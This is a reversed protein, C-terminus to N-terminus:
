LTDLLLQLKMNNYLNRVEPNEIMMQINSRLEDKLNTIVIAERYTSNNYKIYNRTKWIVWKLTKWIVWKLICIVINMLLIDETIEGEYVGIILNEEVLVINKEFISNFIHKLEDLVHKIKHCRYFLYMLSEIENKCFHCQGNSKGM